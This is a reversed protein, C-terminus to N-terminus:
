LRDGYVLLLFSQDTLTGGPSYLKVQTVNLAKAFDADEEGGHPEVAVPIAVAMWADKHRMTRSITVRVVGAAIRSVSGIGDVWDFEYTSGTWRVRASADPAPFRHTGDPYHHREFAPVQRESARPGEDADTTTWADDVQKGRDVRPIPDAM